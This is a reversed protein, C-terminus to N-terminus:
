TKRTKNTNKYNKLLKRKKVESDISSCIIM